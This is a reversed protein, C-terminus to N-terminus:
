SAAAIRKRRGHGNKIPPRGYPKRPIRALDPRELHDAIVKSVWENMAMGSKYAADFILQKLVPDVPVTMIAAPKPADKINVFRKMDLM